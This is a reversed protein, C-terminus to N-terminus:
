AVPELRGRKRAAGEDARWPVLADSLEDLSVDLRVEDRRIAAVVEEELVVTTAELGLRRAAEPELRVTLPRPGETPTRPPAPATGVLAGRCDRVQRQDPPHRFPSM